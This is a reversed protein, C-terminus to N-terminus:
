RASYDNNRATEQATEVDDFDRLSEGYTTAFWFTEIPGPLESQHIPARLIRFRGHNPRPSRTVFGVDNCGLECIEVRFETEFSVSHGSSGDGGPGFAQAGDLENMAILEGDRFDRVLRLERATYYSM